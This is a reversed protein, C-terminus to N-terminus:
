LLGSIINISVSAPIGKGSELVPVYLHAVMVGGIGKNMLAKFPALEINNLRELSHSVVPLDLHSDTNTDGHGPFHKIAALINNKQLGNAYSLASNM